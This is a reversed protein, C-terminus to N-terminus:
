FWIRTGERAGDTALMYETGEVEVKCSRAAFVLM